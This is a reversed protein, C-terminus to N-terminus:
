GKVKSGGESCLSQCQTGLKRQSCCICRRRCYNRRVGSLPSKQRNIRIKFEGIRELPIKRYFLRQSLLLGHAGGVDTSCSFAEDLSCQNLLGVWVQPFGLQCRICASGVVM